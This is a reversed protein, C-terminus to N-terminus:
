PSCTLVNGFPPGGDAFPAQAVLTCCSGAVRMLVLFRCFVAISVSVLLGIIDLGFAGHADCAVGLAMVSRVVISGLAGRVM